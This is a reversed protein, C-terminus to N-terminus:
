GASLDVGFAHRSSTARPSDGLPRNRDITSRRGRDAAEHTTRCRLTELVGGALRALASTASYTISAPKKRLALILWGAVVILFSLIIPYAFSFMMVKTKGNTKQGNSPDKAPKVRKKLEKFAPNFPEVKKAM